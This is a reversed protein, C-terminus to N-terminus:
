KSDRRVPANIVEQLIKVFRIAANFLNTQTASM